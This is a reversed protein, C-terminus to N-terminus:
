PDIEVDFTMGCSPCILWSRVPDGYLEGGCKSGLDLLPGPHYCNHHGYDYTAYPGRHTRGCRCPYVREGNEINITEAATGTSILLSNM